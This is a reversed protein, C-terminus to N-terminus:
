VDLFSVGFLAQIHEFVKGCACEGTVPKEDGHLCSIIHPYHVEIAIKMSM